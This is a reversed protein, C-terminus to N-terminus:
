ENIGHELCNAWTENEPNYMCIICSTLQRLVEIKWSIMDMSIILGLRFPYARALVYILNMVELEDDHTEEQIIDEFNGKVDSSHQTTGETIPGITSNDKATTTNTATISRKSMPMIRKSPHGQDSESTTPRDRKVQITVPIEVNLLADFLIIQYRHIYESIRVCTSAFEVAQTHNFLHYDGVHWM